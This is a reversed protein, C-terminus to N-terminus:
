RRVRVTRPRDDHWREGGSTWEVPPVRAGAEVVVDTVRGPLVFTVTQVRDEGRLIAVNTAVVQSAGDRGVVQRLAGGDLAIETAAAPMTLALLGVYEGEVVDDLGPDPGAVYPPQGPPTGNALRVRVSVETDGDARRRTTLEADVDLFPDLKNGGRNLVALLLSDPGVQGGIGAETWADQEAADRSWVLLHRGATADGLRSALVPLDLDGAQLRDVVAGAIEGLRERRQSQLDSQRRDHTLGEYQDHLLLQEVNHEDISKGDIEV